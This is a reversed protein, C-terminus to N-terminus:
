FREVAHATVDQHRNFNNRAGGQGLRNETRDVSSRKGKEKLYLFVTESGKDLLIM